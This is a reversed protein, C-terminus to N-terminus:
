PLEHAALKAACAVTHEQEALGRVLARRGEQERLHGEQTKAAQAM